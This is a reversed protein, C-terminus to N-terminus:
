SLQNLLSSPFFFAKAQGHTHPTPYPAKPSLARSPSEKRFPTTLLCFLCLFFLCTLIQSFLFTLFQGFLGIRLAALVLSSIGLTRSLRRSFTLCLSATRALPWWQPPLSPPITTKNDTRSSASRNSLDVAIRGRQQRGRMFLGHIRIVARATFCLHRQCIGQKSHSLDGLLIKRLPKM